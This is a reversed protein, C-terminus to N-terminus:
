FGTIAIIYSMLLKREGRAVDPLKLVYQLFNVQDGPFKVRCARSKFLGYTVCVRERRRRRAPVVRRSLFGVVEHQTLYILILASSSLWAPIAM